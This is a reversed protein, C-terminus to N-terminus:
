KIKGEVQISTSFLAFTLLVKGFHKTKGRMTTEWSLGSHAKNKDCFNREEGLAQM